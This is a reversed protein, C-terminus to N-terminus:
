QLPALTDEGLMVLQMLSTALYGASLCGHFSGFANKFNKIKRALTLLTNGQKRCFERVSLDHIKSIAVSHAISIRYFTFWGLARSGVFPLRVTNDPTESNLPAKLGDFRRLVEPLSPWEYLVTCRTRGLREDIYSAVPIGKHLILGCRGEQPKLEDKCVVACM